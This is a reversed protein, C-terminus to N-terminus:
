YSANPTSLSDKVAVDGEYLDGGRGDAITGGRIVLDPNTM